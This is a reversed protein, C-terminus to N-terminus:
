YRLIRWALDLTAVDQVGGRGCVNDALWVVVPGDRGADDEVLADVALGRAWIRAALPQAACGVQAGHKTRRRAVDRALAGKSNREAM